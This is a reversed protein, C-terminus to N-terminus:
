QSGVSGWRSYTSPWTNGWCDRCLMSLTKNKLKCSSDRFLSLGLPHMSWVFWHLFIRCEGLSNIAKPCTHSIRVQLSTITNSSPERRVTRVRGFLVGSGLRSAAETAPVSGICVGDAVTCVIDGDVISVNIADGTSLELPIKECRELDSLVIDLKLAGNM